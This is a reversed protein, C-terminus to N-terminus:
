RQSDRYSDYERSYMEEEEWNLERNYQRYQEYSILGKDLDDDLEMRARQWRDM